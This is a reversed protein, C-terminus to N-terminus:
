EEEHEVERDTHIDVSASVAVGACPERRVGCPAAFPTLRCRAPPAPAVHGLTQSQTVGAGPWVMLVRRLSPWRRLAAPTLSSRAGPSVPRETHSLVALLPAVASTQRLGLMAVVIQRRECFRAFRMSVKVHRRRLSRIGDCWRMELRRWSGAARQESVDRVFLGM